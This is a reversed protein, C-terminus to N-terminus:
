LLKDTSIQAPDSFKRYDEESILYDNLPDRLISDLIYNFVARREKEKRGMEGPPLSTQYSLFETQLTYDSPLKEEIKNRITDLENKLKDEDSFINVLNEDHIWEHSQNQLTIKDKDGLNEVFTAILAFLQMVRAKGREKKISLIVARRYRERACLRHNLDLERRAGGSLKHPFYPRYAIVGNKSQEVLSLDRSTVQVNIYDWLLKMLYSVTTSMENSSTNYQLPNLPNIKELERPITQGVYYEKGYPLPWRPLCETLYKGNVKKIILEDITGPLFLISEKIEILKKAFINLEGTFNPIEGKADERVTSIPHSLYYIQLHEIPSEILKKIMHKPHKIAVIYIPINLLRAVLRSVAIEVQRWELISILNFTSAFLAELPELSMVYSYMEGKSLLRRYVDYIDDIFVILLKVKGQLSGIKLFDIPSLFERKDQHYYVGHLTLFVTEKHEDKSLKDSITDFAKQWLDYQYNISELLIERKFSRGSIRAMEKEISIQKTESAMEQNLNALCKEAGIGSQGTFLVVNKTENM